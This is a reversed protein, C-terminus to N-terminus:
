QPVAERNLPVRAAFERKPLTAIPLMRDTVIRVEGAMDVVDM